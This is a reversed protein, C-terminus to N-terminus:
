NHLSLLTFLLNLDRGPLLAHQYTLSPVDDFARVEDTGQFGRKGHFLDNGWSPNELFIQLTPDITISASPMWIAQQILIVQYHSRTDESIGSPQGQQQIQDLSRKLVALCRAAAKEKQSFSASDDRARFISSLWLEQNGNKLVSEITQLSRLHDISLVM